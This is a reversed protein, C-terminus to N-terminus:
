QSEKTSVFVLRLCCTPALMSAPHGFSSPLVFTPSSRSDVVLVLTGYRAATILRRHATWPLYSISTRGASVLWGSTCLGCAPALRRGSTPPSSGARRPNVSKSSPRRSPASARAAPPMASCLSRVTPRACPQTPRSALPRAGAAMPSCWSAGAFVFGYAPWSVSSLLSIWAPAPVRWPLLPARACSGLEFLVLLSPLSEDPLWPSSPLSRRAPAERRASLKLSLSSPGSPQAGAPSPRRQLSLLYIPASSLSPPSRPSGLFRSAPAPALALFLCRSQVEPLWRPVLM